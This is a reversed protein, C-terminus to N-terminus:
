DLMSGQYGVLLKEQLLLKEKEQVRMILYSVMVLMYVM